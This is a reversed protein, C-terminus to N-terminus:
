SAKATPNSKKRQAYKQCDDLIGLYFDRTMEMNKMTDALKDPDLTEATKFASEVHDPDEDVHIDLFRTPYNAKAVQERIAKGFEVAIGELPLIWGMLPEVSVNQLKYLQVAYLATTVPFEGIQEPKFGMDTLDRLALIEHGREETSHKSLRRQMPAQKPGCKAAGMLLVNCSMSSYYYTQALWAAYFDRDHWPYKQVAALDNIISHYKESVNM